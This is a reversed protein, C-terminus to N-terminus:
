PTKESLATWDPESYDHRRWRYVPAVITGPETASVLLSLADFIVTRQQLENHPEGLPHGLPWKLFVARPVGVAVTLDKTISIAVTAIGQREIERAILGM